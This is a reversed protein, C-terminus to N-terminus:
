AAKIPRILKRELASSGRRFTNEVAQAATRLKRGERKRKGQLPNRSSLGSIHM